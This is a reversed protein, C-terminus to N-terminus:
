VEKMTPERPVGKMLAIPSAERPGMSDEDSVKVTNDSDSDEFDSSTVQSDMSSNTLARQGRRLAPSNALELTNQKM